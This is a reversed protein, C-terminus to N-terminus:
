NLNDYASTKAQYTKGTTNKQTKVYPVQTKAFIHHHQHGPTPPATLCRTVVEYQTVGTMGYIRQLNNANTHVWCVGTNNNWEVAFCNSTRACWNKCSDETKLTSSADAGVSHQDRRTIFTPVCGGIMLMWCEFADVSYLRLQLFHEMMFYVSVPITKWRKLYIKSESLFLGSFYILFLSSSLLSFFFFHFLIPFIEEFPQHPMSAKGEVTLYCTLTFVTNLHEVRGCKM